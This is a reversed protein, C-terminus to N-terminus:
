AGSLQRALDARDYFVEESKALGNEFDFLAVFDISIQKGTPPFTGDATEFPGSHTGTMHGRLVCREGDAAFCTLEVKIDPVGAWIRRERELSATRGVSHEGGPARYSLDEAWLAGLAEPDRANFATSAAKAYNRIDM